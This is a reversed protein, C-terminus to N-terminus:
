CNQCKMASLGRDCPATKHTKLCGDAHVVGGYGTSGWGVTDFLSTELCYWVNVIAYSQKQNLFM